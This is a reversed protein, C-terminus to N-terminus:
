AATDVVVEIPLSARAVKAAIVGVSDADRVIHVSTLMHHRSQYSYSHLCALLGLYQLYQLMRLKANHASHAIYQNICM